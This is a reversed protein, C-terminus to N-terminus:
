FICNIQSHMPVFNQHKRRVHDLFTAKDFDIEGWACWFSFGNYLTLSNIPSNKKLLVNFLKPNFQHQKIKEITVQPLGRGIFEGIEMNKWKIMMKDGKETKKVESNMYLARNMMIKIQDKKEKRKEKKKEKKNKKIEEKVVIEKLRSYLYNIKKKHNYKKIHGYNGCYFRQINPFYKKLHSSSFCYWCRKRNKKPRKKFHQNLNPYIKGRIEEEKNEEVMQINKMMQIDQLEEPTFFQLLTRQKPQTQLHRKQFLKKQIM